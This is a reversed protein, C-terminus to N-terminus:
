TDIERRVESLSYSIVTQELFDLTQERNNKLHSALKQFPVTGTETWWMPHTLIQMPLKKSFDESNIPNGRKWGGGSDSHYSIDKFFIKQYTHIIGFPMELNDLNFADKGVKHFSVVRTNCFPFLTRFLNLEDMLPQHFNDGYFSKDFHLCIDHGMESMQKISQFAYASLTNYLPSRLHFFYTTKIGLSQEIRAIKIANRISFDVDHRLLVFPTKNEVLKDLEYTFKAFLYHQNKLKTLIDLYNQVHLIDSDIM